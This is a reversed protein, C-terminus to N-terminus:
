NPIARPSRLSQLGSPEETWPIRWCSHQLLSGNGGGPSRGSGPISVRDRVDGASAPPNKVTSRPYFYAPRTPLMSASSLPSPLQVFFSRRCPKSAPSLTTGLAPSDPPVHLSVQTQTLQWVLILFGPFCGAPLSHLHGWWPSLWLPAPLSPM